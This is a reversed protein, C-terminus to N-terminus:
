SVDEQTTTVGSQGVAAQPSLADVRNARNQFIRKMAENAADHLSIFNDPVAAQEEVQVLLFIALDFDHDSLERRRAATLIGTCYGALEAPSMYVLGRGAEDNM